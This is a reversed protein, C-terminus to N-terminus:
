ELTKREINRLVGVKNNLFNFALKYSPFIYFISYGFVTAWIIGSVGFKLSLFIKLLVSSVGALGIMKIQKALLPGSNLFTSMVGGYNGLLVFVYFGLLLSWSPIYHASVWIAIIQKGFLLLPLSIIAACSISLYLGKKVTKRAWGFDGSEIAEAFAPWLPQIIFQTFMSFLFLKKVIEYGAVSSAGLTQAIIIDDSTNAILTFFGLLFFIMGSNILSKGVPWNFYKLKPLLYNRKKGFLYIGNLITALLQGGSFSLVLWVLGSKFYICILIGTLSLLSGLILWLQFKFGEQYGSQIREVIGLPINILFIVVLAMMAPGSEQIALASQVNFVHQWSIFPFISIFVLFLVTSVGVLIFFTSSVATQAEQKNNRANAKSVANLLGNGLGLDAFSMLAIVSSIAMWLGYREAGLYNVTLPVTILNILASFIKVIATSGGTLLIRRYREHSKGQENSTDHPTFQFIKKLKLWNLGVIGTIRNMKKFLEM